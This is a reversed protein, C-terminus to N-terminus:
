AATTAALVCASFDEMSATTFSSILPSLLGWAAAESSAAGVLGFDPRKKYGAARPQLRLAVTCSGSFRAERVYGEPSGLVALRKCRTQRNKKANSQRRVRWGVRLDDGCGGTGGISYGFSAGALAGALASVSPRGVVM